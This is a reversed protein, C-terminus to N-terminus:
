SGARTLWFSRMGFAFLLLAFSMLVIAWWRRRRFIEPESGIRPVMPLGFALGVAFGGLHAMNDIQLAFHTFLSGAGLVFNLLAFNIVSRRLKRLEIPPIPLLPSKLLVILVGALGFIAGSAGAGVIGVSGSLVGPHLATSLLNGALGTLLYVAFVGLPGLLPEGLLGLNWLCWMNTALHVIGVHVFMATILRWWEGGVLVFPGYDAGWHILQDATPSLWSVGSVVMALYVLCNIGVLIYTAPAMAWHRRPRRPLPAPMAVRSYDQPPPYEGPPLIEPPGSRQEGYSQAATPGM